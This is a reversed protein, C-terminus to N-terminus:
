PVALREFIVQPLTISDGFYSYLAHLSTPGCTTYNPQREIFVPLEIDMLQTRM